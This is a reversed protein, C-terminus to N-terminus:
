EGMGWKAVEQLYSIPFRAMPKGDVVERERDKVTTFVYNKNMKNMYLVTHFSHLLDKQGAPMLGINKILALTQPPTRDSAEKAPATGLIHVRERSFLTNLWRFYIGNIAPWDRWADLAQPNKEKANGRGIEEIKSRTYMIQTAMDHDFVQDAYWDQVMQWSASIFDIALWDTPGYQIKTLGQLDDWGYVPIIEVNDLDGYGIEYMHQVASDTDAIYIKGPTNFQKYFKALHLAASSKGAGAGGYLLIREKSSYQSKFM